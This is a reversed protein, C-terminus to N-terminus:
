DFALERRSGGRDASLTTALLETKKAFEDLQAIWTSQHEIPGLIEVLAPERSRFLLDASDKLKSALVAAHRLHQKLIARNNWIHDGNNCYFRWLVKILWDRFGESPSVFGFVEEINALPLQLALESFAGFSLDAKPPSKTKM